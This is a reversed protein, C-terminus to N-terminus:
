WCNIGNSLLGKKEAYIHEIPTKYPADWYKHSHKEGWNWSGRSEIKDAKNSQEFLAEEWFKLAEDYDEAGILGSGYCDVCTSNSSASFKYVYIKKDM